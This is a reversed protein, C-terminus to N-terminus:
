SRKEKRAEKKFIEFYEWSFFHEKRCEKCFLFLGNENTQALLKETENCRIAKKEKIM